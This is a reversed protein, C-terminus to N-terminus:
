YTHGIEGKMVEAFRSFHRGAPQFMKADNTGLLVEATGNSARAEVHVSTM